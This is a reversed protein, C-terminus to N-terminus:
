RKGVESVNTGPAIADPAVFVVAAIGALADLKDVAIKGAIERARISEREPEFGLAKLQKVATKADGSLIVTVRLKDGKLKCVRRAQSKNAQARWCDYAAVLQPHLKQEILRLPKGPNVSATTASTSARTGNFALQINIQSAVPKGDKVSPQFKWQRVANLAAADMEGGAARAVRVDHAKGDPGVMVWLEVVGQCATRPCKAAPSYTARPASIGGGVRYVGGGIGGGYGPGIGAGHGSGMGGGSSAVAVTSNPIKAPIRGGAVFTGTMPVFSMMQRAVGNGVIMGPPVTGSWIPEYQVGEAMEVPVQIRKPKGGDTVVRDEVAVFSTFQTM